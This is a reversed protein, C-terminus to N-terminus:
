IVGKRKLEAESYDLQGKVYFWEAESLSTVKGIQEEFMKISEEFGM